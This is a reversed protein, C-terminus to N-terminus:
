SAWKALWEAYWRVTEQRLRTEEIDFVEGGGDHRFETALFADFWPREGFERRLVERALERMREPTAWGEVLTDGVDFFVARIPM